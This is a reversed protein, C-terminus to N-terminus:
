KRRRKQTRAHQIINNIVTKSNAIIDGIMSGGVQAFAISCNQIDHINLNSDFM